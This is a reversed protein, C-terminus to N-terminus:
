PTHGALALNREWYDKVWPVPGYGFKRSTGWRSMDDRILDAPNPLGHFVVIKAERPEPVKKLVLNFPYYYVCRRKFSACWDYPWYHCPDAERAIYIQDNWYLGYVREHDAMFNKVLGAQDRPVFGIVSGNGGRDPRWEVPLLRWPSPNWERIIHLGGQREIVEFFPDLPARVLIDVDLYLAPQDAPLVGPKFIALKPWYGRAWREKPVGLDPIPGCTVQPVIGAPDDTLCVFDFPRSLNARVAHYLVNVYSAPYLDGWKLCVVTVRM